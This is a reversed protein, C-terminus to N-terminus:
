KKWTPRTDNISENKKKEKTIKKIKKQKEYLVSSDFDESYYDNVNYKRRHSDM